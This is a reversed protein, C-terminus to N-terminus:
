DAPLLEPDLIRLASHAELRVQEDPDNLHKAIIPASARAPPGIQYLVDIASKRVRPNSDDVFRTALPVASEGLVWLPSIMLARVAPVQFLLVYVMLWALSAFVLRRMTEVFSPRFGEPSADTTVASNLVWALSSMGGWVWLMIGVIMVPFAIVIRLADSWQGGMFDPIGLFALAVMLLLGICTHVLISPFFVFYGVFTELPRSMVAVLLEPM